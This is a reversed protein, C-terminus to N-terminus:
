VELIKSIIIDAIDNALHSIHENRLAINTLEQIIQKDPWNRLNYLRNEFNTDM